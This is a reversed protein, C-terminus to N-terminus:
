LGETFIPKIKKKEDESMCFNRWRKPHWGILMLEESIYKELAKRKEFKSYWDLLRILIITDPDDEDFNNDLNISNLDINYNVWEIVILYLM